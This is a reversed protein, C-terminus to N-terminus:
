MSLCVKAQVLMKRAKFATVIDSIVQQQEKYFSRAKFTGNGEELVGIMWSEFTLAADRYSIVHRFDSQQMVRVIMTSFWLCQGTWLHHNNNDHVARAVLALDLLTPAPVGNQWVRFTTREMLRVNRTKEVDPMESVVCMKDTMGPAECAASYPSHQPLSPSLPTPSFFSSTSSSSSSSSSLSSHASKRLSFPKPFEVHAEIPTQLLFDRELRIYRDVGYEPDSITAIVYEHQDGTAEKFWNLEKVTLTAMRQRYADSVSTDESTYHEILSLVWTPIDHEGRPFEASDSLSIRFARLIPRTLAKLSTRYKLTSAPISLNRLHTTSVTRIRQLQPALRSYASPPAM